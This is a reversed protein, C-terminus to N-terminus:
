VQLSLTDAGAGLERGSHMRKARVATITKGDNSHDLMFGSRSVHTGDEPMVLDSLASPATGARLRKLRSM